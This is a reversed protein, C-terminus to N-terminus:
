ELNSYYEKVRDLIPHGDPHVKEGLSIAKEFYEKAETNNGSRSLVFAINSLARLHDPNEEGSVVKNMEYAKKMWEVAEELDGQYYYSTGINGLIEITQPHDEGLIETRTVYASYILESSEEFDGTSQLAVGLRNDVDALNLNREEGYVAVMLNRAERLYEVAEEPRRQLYMNWGLFMMSRGEQSYSYDYTESIVSDQRLKLVERFYAEGQEYNGLNSNAWGAIDLAKAYLASLSDEAEVLMRLSLQNISDAEYFSGTMHLIEARYVKARIEHELPKRVEGKKLEEVQVPILEDEIFAEYKDLIVHVSDDLRLDRAAEYQRMYIDALEYYLDNNLERDKLKLYEKEADMLTQLSEEPDRYNNQLEGIIMLVRGKSAPSDPFSIETLGVAEQLFSKTEARPNKSASFDMKRFLSLMFESTEIAQKEATLALNREKNINVSYFVSFFILLLFLTLSGMVKNRNRKVFKKAYYITSGEKAKVPENDLYRRIDESLEAVTSYRENPIKRTAKAIIADLDTDLDNGLKPIQEELIFGELQKRNKGESSFPYQGKLLEFLLIGLSFVDTVTSIPEHKIQEPAAYKLTYLHQHQRTFEDSGSEDSEEILKSIGFDLIKINGVEDILINSPKLDRHVVLNQHAYEVARCVKEFISLREETTLNRTNAYSILDEGEVYEMVLYPFGQPAIGADYLQAIGPHSLRGLIQQERLFRRKVEDFHISMAMMKIAVVREFRGDARSAAYVKGMGGTGILETIEYPGLTTGIIQDQDPLLSVETTIEEDMLLEQNLSIGKDWFAESESISELHEEVKARLEADGECLEWLKKKQIGQPQRLVEDSIEVIKQWQEKKM